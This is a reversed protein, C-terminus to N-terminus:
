RGPAYKLLLEKIRNYAPTPQLDSNYLGAFYIKDNSLRDKISWCNIAVAGKDRKKLMMEVIAGYTEAIESEKEKIIKFNANKGMKIDLETVHFELKNQYCWDILNNLKDMNEPVKEFGYPIHAQWGIADVKLGKSRLYLITNKVKDWAVDEMGGNHNYLKKISPAYENALEFALKIYTPVKLPTDTEFGLITWPNEWGSNGCRPGFWDGANYIINDTTSSSDYGNGRIATPCVTENVVDMWKVVDKNVELVKSIMTMYYTMVPKLEETTRNDEKAWNSCQPSIPCHARVVQKNNRAMALLQQYFSDQWKAKPEPYVVRQKFENELTNYSFENLFIDKEANGEAKLYKAKSTCGFYFNNKSYYKEIIQRITLDKDEITAIIKGKAALTQPQIVFMFGTILLIIVGFGQNKKNM